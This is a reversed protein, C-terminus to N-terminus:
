RTVASPVRISSSRLRGHHSCQAQLSGGEVPEVASGARAVLRPALYARVPIRRPEGLHRGDDGAALEDVRHRVPEREVLDDLLRAVVIKRHQM